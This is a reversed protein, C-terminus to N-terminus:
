ESEPTYVRQALERDIMMIGHGQEGVMKLMNVIRDVSAEEEVQEDIYWQLFSRTAHDNEKIALDMLDNISKSIFREHDLAMKFAKLPNDFEITPEAIAKLKVKAGRELLYNFFKMAHFREEKGQADMWNAMGDLNQDAFWAQMSIYLYESFLERNIQENIAAAMKKSIM